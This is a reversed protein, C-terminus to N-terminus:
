NIKHCHMYCYGVYLYFVLSIGTLCHFEGGLGEGGNKHASLRLGLIGGRHPPEWQVSVLCVHEGPTVHCLSLNKKYMTLDDKNTEILKTVCHNALHCFLHCDPIKINTKNSAYLAYWYFPRDTHRDTQRHTQRDTQGEM